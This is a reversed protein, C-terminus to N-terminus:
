NNVTENSDLLEQFYRKLIKGSKFYYTGNSALESMKDNTFPKKEQIQVAKNGDMKVFAYNDSGLMHPHFGTYCAIAGDADANRVEKLFDKYNWNTGYDCYSVIVETNDDITDFVQSVAFVPGKNHCPISCIKATSCLGLLVKSMNTETLHKENCIFTTNDPNEFIDLVHKIIPYGDIEILPKPNKYGAEIFRRGTGSMPVILQVNKSM